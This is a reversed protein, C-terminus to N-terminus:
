AQWFHKEFEHEADARSVGIDKLMSDSLSMLQRRDRARAVWDVPAQVARTLVPALGAAVTHALGNRPILSLIHNSM